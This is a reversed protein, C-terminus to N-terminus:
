QLCDQVPASLLDRAHIDVRNERLVLVGVIDHNREFTAIEDVVRCSQPRHRRDGDPIPFRGIALQELSPQRPTPFRRGAPQLTTIPHETIGRANKVIGPCWVVCMICSM